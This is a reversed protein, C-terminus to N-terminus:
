SRSDSRREVRVLAIVFLALILAFHCLVSPLAGEAPAIYRTTIVAPVIFGLTGFLLLDLQRQSLASDSSRRGLFSFIVIGFLGLWYYWGYFRIRPVPHAYRAYVVNCVSDSVFRGDVAIWIVIAMGASLMTFATIRMWRAEPSSLQAALVLGLPPLCTVIIFALQPIATSTPSLTCLVAEAIQYGALLFLMVAATRLIHKRGPGRLTWVGAWIEILATAVALVPSYEM